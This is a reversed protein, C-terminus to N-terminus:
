VLEMNAKEELYRISGTEVILGGNAYVGFNILYDEDDLAFHWVTYTGASQWPEANNDICAPLRYKGETVCVVGLMKKIEDKQDDTLSDVLTSHCGTLYLDSTLAPYQASTLKYLRDKIRNSDNFNPIDRKGIIHVMKYGSNLTKVLTGKRIQEIPLYTEKEDVLCLIQSGELFCPADGSGGYLYYYTGAGGLSSVSTGNPFNGLNNNSLDIVTWSTTAGISGATVNGVLQSGSSVDLYAIRVGSLGAIITYNSSDSNSLGLQANAQNAYYSISSGGVAFAKESMPGILLRPEVGTNVTKHLLGESFKFGTNETINYSEDDVILNGSNNNLYVLYTNEFSSSGVDIHPLTDEKIWRMPLENIGTFDLDFRQSLTERISDTLYISFYVKNSKELKNKAVLVEPLNNIYEIDESSLVNEFKSAM